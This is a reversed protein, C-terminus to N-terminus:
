IHKWTRRTCIASTAKTTMKYQKAIDKVMMGAQRLKRMEIVQSETLFTKPHKSGQPRHRNVKLVELAHIRQESYSMLTLNQPRNDSKKGNEHNITMGKPITTNHYVWVVRHAGTATRKGNRTATICLYGGWTSYEARVRKCPSTKAGKHYGGGMMVGKGHRKRLRWIRGHSDIELEGARVMALFVKEKDM